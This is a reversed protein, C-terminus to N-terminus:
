KKDTKAQNETNQKKKFHEKFLEEMRYEFRRADTRFNWIAFIWFGVIILGTFVLQYAPDIQVEGGKARLTKKLSNEFQNKAWPEVELAKRYNANLEDAMPVVEKPYDDKQVREEIDSTKIKTFQHIVAPATNGIVGMIFDSTSNTAEEIAKEDLPEKEYENVEEFSMEDVTQEPSRDQPEFDDFDEDIEDDPIDTIEPEDEPIEPIEFDDDIKDPNERDTENPDFSYDKEEPSASNIPAIAEEEVEIAELEKLLGSEDIEKEKSM